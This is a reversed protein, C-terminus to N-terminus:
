LLIGWESATASVLLHYPSIFIAVTSTGFRNGAVTAKMTDYAPMPSHVPMDSVVVKDTCETPGISVTVYCCLM